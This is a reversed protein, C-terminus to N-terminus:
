GWSATGKLVARSKGSLALNKFTEEELLGKQEEEV